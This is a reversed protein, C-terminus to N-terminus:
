RPSSLWIDLGLLVRDKRTEVVKVGMELWAIM